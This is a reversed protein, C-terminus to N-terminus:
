KSQTRIDVTQTATRDHEQEKEYHKHVTQYTMESIYFHDKLFQIEAKLEQEPLNAVEEVWDILDKYGIWVKYNTAKDKIM